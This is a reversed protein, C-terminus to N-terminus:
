MGLNALMNELDAKTGGLELTIIIEEIKADREDEINVKQNRYEQEAIKDHVYIGYYEVYRIDPEFNWQECNDKVIDLIDKKFQETASKIKAEVEAKKVQYDLDVERLHPAYAERVKKAIYEKVTKSVKM